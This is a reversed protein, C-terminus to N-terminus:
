GRRRLVCFDFFDSAGVGRFWWFITCGAGGAFILVDMKPVLVFYDPRNHGQCAAAQVRKVCKM